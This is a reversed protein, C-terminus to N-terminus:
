AKCVFNIERFGTGILMGAQKCLPALKAENGSKISLMSSYHVSAFSLREMLYPPKTELM